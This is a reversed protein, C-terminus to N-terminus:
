RVSSLNTTIRRLASLCLLPMISKLGSIKIISVHIIRILPTTNVIHLKGGNYISVYEEIMDGINGNQCDDARVVECEGNRRGIHFINDLRKLYKAVNYVPIIFM